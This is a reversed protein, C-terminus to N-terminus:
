RGPGGSPYLGDLSRAGRESIRNIEVMRSPEDAAEEDEMNRMDLGDPVGDAPMSGLAAEDM